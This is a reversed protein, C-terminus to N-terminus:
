WANEQVLTKKLSIKKQLKNIKYVLFNKPKKKLKENKYNLTPFIAGFKIPSVSFQQTGKLKFCFFFM